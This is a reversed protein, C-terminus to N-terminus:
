NVNSSAASRGAVAGTSWAAQLNYGGVPGAVDLIEGALYLNAFLKSQMTQPDVENLSVGGAVVEGRELPVARVVGLNWEKVTRVIRTANKVSLSLARLDVQVGTASTLEPRLREPCRDEYFAHVRKRPANKSWDLLHDRLCEFPKDPFFDCEVIPKATPDEALAESIERTIGLTAPGSLGKHTFLADGAWRVLEKGGPSSRARLLISRLAVGSWEPRPLALYIPALAARLPIITHGVQDLWRWGDGTTGTSPYSSGGSTVIVCDASYPVGNSVVGTIRKDTILLEDVATNYKVRVDSDELFRTLVTVVDKANAPEVPFIRGDPRTYTSLGYHNLIKLFDRNTFKYFSAKLFMSENRRFCALISKVDGEHTLNCKGGGSILIKLGLRENKEFLTVEAGARAAEAAALIGAAGGGVVIITKKSNSATQPLITSPTM